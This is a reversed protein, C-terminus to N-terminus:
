KVFLIFIDEERQSGGLFLRGGWPRRCLSRRNWSRKRSWPGHSRRQEVETSSRDAIMFM